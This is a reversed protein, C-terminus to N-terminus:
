VTHFVLSRQGSGGAPPYRLPRLVEPGEWAAVPYVTARDTFGNAALNARLSAVHVPDPEICTVTPAGPALAVLTWTGYHAGIDLAPGKLSHGVLAEYAALGDAADQLLRDAFADGHPLALPPPRM